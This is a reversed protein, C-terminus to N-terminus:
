CHRKETKHHPIRYLWLESDTHRDVQGVQMNFVESPRMGTLRQLKVMARLTPPLFPLTRRIADDSIHEREPNDFTGPYGEPLRKVAKLATWTDPKVYEMEGAWTFITVIRRTYENIQRRCFRGSNIMEERVCRLSSPKFEDAPTGDGYLKLLFDLIVVRYHSYNPSGLTREAHNLFAAVVEKVTADTKGKPVFIGPNNKSEALFRAYAVQSEPSGHIGIRHKKGNHYV